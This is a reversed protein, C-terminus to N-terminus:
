DGGLSQANIAEAVLTFTGPIKPNDRDPFEELHKISFGASIAASVIEGLTWFRYQCHGLHRGTPSPVDAVILESQFYDDLEPHWHLKRQIPHFENLILRGGSKALRRVLTFFAELDQHYHVIGFEMVLLDSLADLGLHGSQMVDCVHYSISVGAAQALQAAYKQNPKSFDIVDVTGGLLALAVAVRGHSGQINCIRGGELKGLHPYLRRLVHKPDNVIGRAAVEPTGYAHCWADYRSEEWALQNQDTAKM